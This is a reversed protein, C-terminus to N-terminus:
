LQGASPAESEPILRMFILQSFFFFLCPHLFCQLTWVLSGNAAHGPDAVAFDVTDDVSIRHLALRADVGFSGLIWLPRELLDAPTWVSCAFSLACFLASDDAMNGHLHKPDLRAFCCRALGM